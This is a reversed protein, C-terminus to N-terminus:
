RLEETRRQYLIYEEAELVKEYDEQFGLFIDLKSHVGTILHTFDYEKLFIGMDAEGSTLKISESYIDEQQNIKKQYLEPRADIYVKYGKWEMFAGNGFETYLKIQERDFQELYDAALNPTRYSDANVDSNSELSGLIWLLLLLGTGQLAIVCFLKKLSLTRRSEKRDFYENMIRCLVPIGGPLLFWFNREHMCALLLTGFQMYVLKIDPEKRYVYLYVASLVISGAIFFGTYSLLCPKQMESIRHQLNASQYSLFLYAMGRIGNPNLFGALFMPLMIGWVAKKERFFESLKKFSEKKFLIGRLDPVAYPLMLIFQIPWFTAHFNIEFLSLVPLIWLNKWNKKKECFELICLETLLVLITVASPRSTMFRVLIMDSVILAAMKLSRVNTFFSSYLYIVFQLLLFILACYVELGWIGFLDFLIYNAVSALWQQVIMGFNEHIVFPNVTPVERNELIYRGTGALFYFDSDPNKYCMFSICLIMVLLYFFIYVSAAYSYKRGSIEAKFRKNNM